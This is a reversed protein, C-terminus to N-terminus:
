DMQPIYIAGVLANVTQRLRLEDEFDQEIVDAIQEFTKGSDNLSTILAQQANSIGIEALVEMPVYGLVMDTRGARRTLRDWWRARSVLDFLVGMACFRTRGRLSRERLIGHGQQYDGSRLAAIWTRKLLPNM